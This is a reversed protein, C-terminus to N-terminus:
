RGSFRVRVRKAEGTCVGAVLNRVGNLWRPSRWCDGVDLTAPPTVLVDLGVLALADVAELRACFSSGFAMYPDGLDRRKHM